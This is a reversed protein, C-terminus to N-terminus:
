QSTLPCQFERFYKLQIVESITDPTIEIQLQDNIDQNKQGEILRDVTPVVIMIGPSFM